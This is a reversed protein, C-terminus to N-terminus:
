AGGKLCIDVAEHIIEVLRKINTNHDIDVGFDICGSQTSVIDVDAFGCDWYMTGLISYLEHEDVNESEGLESTILIKYPYTM